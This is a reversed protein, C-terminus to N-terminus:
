RASVSCLLPRMTKPVAPPAEAGTWVQVRARGVNNAYFHAPRWPLLADNVFMRLTGTLEPQILTVYGASKPDCVFEPLDIEVSRGFVRQILDDPGAPEQVAILPALWDALMVRKFPAGILDRWWPLDAGRGAAPSAPSARANSWGEPQDLAQADNALVTVRVSYIEGSVIARGTGNCPSAIDMTFEITEGVIPRHVASEHCFVDHRESLPFLILQSLLSMTAMVAVVILGLGAVAPALRWKVAVALSQYWAMDRIAAVGRSPEPEASAPELGLARRWARRARSRLRLDYARSWAFMLGIATM